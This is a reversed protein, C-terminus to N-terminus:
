KENINRREQEDKLYDSYSIYNGECMGLMNYKFVEEHLLNIEQKNKEIEVHQNIGLIFAINLSKCVNLVFDKTVGNYSTYLTNKFYIRHENVGYDVTFPEM